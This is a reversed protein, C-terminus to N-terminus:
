KFRFNLKQSTGDRFKLTLQRCTGAWASSTAFGWEYRNNALDYRLGAATTQTVNFTSASPCTIRVSSPSGPVFIGLGLTKNATVGFYDLLDFRVPVTRGIQVVNLVPQNQPYFFGKFTFRVGYDRIVSPAMNGVNDSASVGFTKAGGSSTSLNSDNAATGACTRVGSGGDTCLYSAPAPQNLLYVAGEPPATVTISPAKRDIKNGGIPGATMCRAVGDCVIRNNTPAAATEAGVSVATVLTFSADGTSALGAGGDTAACGITVNVPHWIGDPSGCTVGPAKKDVRNGGIPAATACNGAVDCVDRTGTIADATEMGDPVGTSLSFSADAPDRLGSIDDSATCAISVDDTHWNGDASGCSVTPPDVDLPPSEDPVLALTHAYVQTLFVRGLAPDAAIGYPGGPVPVNAVADGSRTDVITLFSQQTHPVYLRNTAPVVALNRPGTGAPISGINSNTLGDLISITNSGYNAVYIRNAKSDVAVGAPYLGVPIEAAVTRSAGDIVAIKSNNGEAVYVRNRASDVAVGDPQTNFGLEVTGVVENSSGDIVSVTYGTVNAVYVLNRREDVALAVPQNCRCANSSPSTIRITALIENTAGDIVSVSDAYRNAVYVRNTSENVAVDYPSAGLAITNLLAGDTADVVSLTAENFHVAYIRQTAANLEVETPQPPLATITTATPACAHGLDSWPALSALVPDAAGVDYNDLTSGDKRWNWVLVGAIGVGFQACLKAELANARDRLSGGVDSPRIGLEGVVLPKQLANCQDLRRQLGNWQDGPIPADYQYDHYECLDLTPVSMVDQYDDGQAGCQGSGITGLSVLHNPDASKIVGSVDAAFSKLIATANSSCSTADVAPKVEPENVLQWALITPDNQYRAAIEGVWDRYSVTGGPDPQKYGDTYWADKKYGAAPECDAWQNALTAVVKVGNARAVALTHDFASWDRAGNTTALFQFFWARIANKGPGIATLSDDLTSGHAMDYWCNDASNANYVNLGAFRYPQVDLVLQAGERTVFGTLAGAAAASPKSSAEAALLPVLLIVACAIATKLPIVPM